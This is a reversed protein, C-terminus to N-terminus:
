PAVIATGTATLSVDGAMGGDTAVVVQGKPNKLGIPDGTRRASKRREPESRIQRYNWFTIVDFTLSYNDAPPVPFEPLSADGSELAFAFGAFFTPDPDIAVSLARQILRTDYMQNWSYYAIPVGGLKMAIRSHQRVYELFSEVSAFGTPLVGKFSLAVTAETIRRNVGVIGQMQSTLPATIIWPNPLIVAM